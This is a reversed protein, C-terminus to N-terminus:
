MIPPVLPTLYLVNAAIRAKMIKYFEEPSKGISLQEMPCLDRGDDRMIFPVLKELRHKIGFRDLTKVALESGLPSCVEGAKAVVALLAAANGMIKDFIVLGDSANKRTSIFDMLPLLRDKRSSFVLKGGRYIRLTDSSALFAQFLANRNVKNAASM